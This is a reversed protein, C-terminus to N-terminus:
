MNLNDIQVQIKYEFHYLVSYKKILGTCFKYEKHFDLHFWYKMYYHDYISLRSNHSNVYKNSVVYKIIEFYIESCYKKLNVWKTDKLIKNIKFWM